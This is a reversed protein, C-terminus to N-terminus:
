GKRSSLLISTESGAIGDLLRVTSLLRDFAELTDTELEAVVDWRGNTTHLTRVEPFGQLRRVVTEARHGDVEIMMIARVRGGAEHSRLRVTFGQIVGSESLRDIRAKM